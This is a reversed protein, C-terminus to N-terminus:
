FLSGQGFLVEYSCYSVKNLKALSLSHGVINIVQTTAPYSCHPFQESILAANAKGASLSQHTLPHCEIIGSGVINSGGLQNIWLGETCYNTIEKPARLQTLKHILSVRKRLQGMLATERCEPWPPETTVTSSKFNSIHM